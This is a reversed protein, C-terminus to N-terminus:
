LSDRPVHCSASAIVVWAKDQVVVNELDPVGNPFLDASVTSWSMATPSGSSAIVARSVFQGM